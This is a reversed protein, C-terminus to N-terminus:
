FDRSFDVRDSTACGPSLLIKTEIGSRITIYIYLFNM